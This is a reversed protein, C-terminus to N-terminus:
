KDEGKAYHINNQGTRPIEYFYMAKYVTSICCGFKKAIKNKSLGEDLLKILEDKPIMSYRDKGKKGDFCMNNRHAQGKGKENHKDYVVELFQVLIDPDNWLAWFRDGKNLKDMNKLDTKM